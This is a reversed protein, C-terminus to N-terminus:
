GLNKCTPENHEGFFHISFTQSAFICSYLDNWYTQIGICPIHLIQGMQNEERKGMSFLSLGPMCTITTRVSSLPCCAYEGTESACCTQGDPCFTKRDPCAVGSNRNEHPQFYLTDGHVFAVVLPLLLLGRM